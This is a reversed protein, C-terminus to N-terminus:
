EKELAMLIEAKEEILNNRTERDWEQGLAADIAALRAEYGARVSDREAIQRLFAARRKALLAPPYEAAQRALSPLWYLLPLSPEAPTWTVAHRVPRTTTTM